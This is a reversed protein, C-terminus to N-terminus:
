IEMKLQNLMENIFWSGNGTLVQGGLGSDMRLFGTEQWHEILGIGKLQDLLQDDIEAAM